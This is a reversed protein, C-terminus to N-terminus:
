MPPWKEAVDPQEGNGNLVCSNKSVTPLKRSISSSRQKCNNFRATLLFRWSYTCFNGGKWRRERKERNQKQIDPRAVKGKQPDM